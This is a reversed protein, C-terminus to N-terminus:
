TGTSDDASIDTAKCVHKSLATMERFKEGCAECTFKNHVQKAHKKVNDPRSFEKNCESCSSKTDKGPRHPCHRTNHRHLNGSNSYKKRCLTCCLAANPPPSSAAPDIQGNSGHGRPHVASKPALKSLARPATQSQLGQHVNNYFGVDSPNGYAAPLADDISARPYQTTPVFDSPTHWALPLQAAPTVSDYVEVNQLNHYGALFTAGLGAHSYPVTPVINSSARRVIQSQPVPRVDYPFGIDPTNYYGSPLIAGPYMQADQPIPTLDSSTRRGPQPQYENHGTNLGASYSLNHHRARGATPPYTSSRLPPQSSFPFLKQYSVPLTAPHNSHSHHTAPSASPPTGHYSPSMVAPYYTPLHQLTQSASLSEDYDQIFGQNAFPSGTIFGGASPSLQPDFAPSESPVGNDLGGTLTPSQLIGCQPCGDGQCFFCFKDM